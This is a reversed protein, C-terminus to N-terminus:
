KNRDMSEDAWAQEAVDRMETATLPPAIPAVSGATRAIVGEARRVTAQGNALEVTVRDGQRLGLARRVEAPLTIQGKRTVVTQHQSM